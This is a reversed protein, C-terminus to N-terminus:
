MFVSYVHRSNEYQANIFPILRFRFSFFFFLELIYFGRDILSRLSITFGELIKLFLFPIKYFRRQGASQSSPM